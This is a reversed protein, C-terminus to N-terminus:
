RKKHLEKWNKRDDVGGEVIRMFDIKNCERNEFMVKEEVPHDSNYKIIKNNYIKWVESHDLILNNFFPITVISNDNESIWDINLKKTLEISKMLMDDLMFRSALDIFDSTYNKPDVFGDKRSSIYVPVGDLIMYGTIYYEYLYSVSSIRNIYYTNKNSNIKGKFSIFVVTENGYKSRYLRINQKVENDLDYLQLDKDSKLITCSNLLILYILLYITKYIIKVM